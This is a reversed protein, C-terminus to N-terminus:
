LLLKVYVVKLQRKENRRALLSLFELVLPVTLLDMSNKCKHTCNCNDEFELLYRSIGQQLYLINYGLKFRLKSHWFGSKRLQRKCICFTAM